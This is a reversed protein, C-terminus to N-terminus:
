SAKPVKSTKTKGTGKSSQMNSSLLVHTLLFWAGGAVVALLLIMESFSLQIQTGPVEGLVIFELM